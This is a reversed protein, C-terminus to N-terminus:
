EESGQLDIEFENDWNGRINLKEKRAVVVEPQRRKWYDGTDWKGNGNTDYLIRTGYEGPRFLRYEYRSKLLPESMELRDEKYVLLVPRRSTDLNRVNIRLSGYDGTEKAKFELTDTKIFRNGMTDTAFDKALVLHYDKGPTWPHRVALRLGSSDIPMTRIPLPQFNEDTLVVGNTDLTRIRNEFNLVLDGLLDLKGGELNNGVRLRKDDKPRQPAKGAQPQATPTLSRGPEEPESFAYLTLPRADASSVSSDLFGIMESKQDYKLSGDSEKLAFVRYDGPALFRFLFEGNGRVKVMYRPRSRAVTSDDGGTHLVVVMTSDTRGNEATFVRGRIVGSDIKPGTSFVYTLGRLINNENIDRISEGFDISYTTNPELTDKIRLTVTKLRAETQPRVKPVPSFGLKEFPNDLQVYENFELVIRDGKFGTTSDGPSAKLLIPPLTDRPGGTPPMPQGCGVVALVWAILLSIKSISRNLRAM